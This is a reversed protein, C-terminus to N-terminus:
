ESMMLKISERYDNSNYIYTGAVLIDAGMELCLKSTNNNVGGDVSILFRYGNKVRLDNADQIKSVISEIFKQGGYGPNISMILLLDIENLFDSILSISTEPNLAIGFDVANEKCLKMIEIIEDKSNAEYHVTICNAGSKIFDMILKKSYYMMLHVDFYMSTHERLGQLINPGFSLNPVFHGDMVDIHLYECGEISEVKKIEELYCSSNAAFLSPAVIM